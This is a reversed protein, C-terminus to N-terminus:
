RYVVGLFLLVVYIFILLFKELNLAVGFGTVILM